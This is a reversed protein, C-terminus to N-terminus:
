NITYNHDNQTIYFNAKNEELHEITDKSKASMNHLEEDEKKLLPAYERIKMKCWHNIEEPSYGQFIEWALDSCKEYYEFLISELKEMDLEIGKETTKNNCM